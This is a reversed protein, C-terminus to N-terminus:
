LTQLCVSPGSRNLSPIRVAATHGVPENAIYIRGNQQLIFTCLFQLPDLSQAEKGGGGGKRSSKPSSSSAFNGHRSASPFFSEKISCLFINGTSDAFM